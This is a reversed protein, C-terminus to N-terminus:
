IPSLVEQIICFFDDLQFFGREYLTMLAVSTIPKTMSYVRFITDRKIPRKGERDMLGLGSVYGLEGGRYIGMLTGIYRNTDIYKRQLHEEIFALREPAFGFDKM